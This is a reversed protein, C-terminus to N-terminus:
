LLEELTKRTAEDPTVRIVTWVDTHYVQERNNLFASQDSPTYVDTRYDNPDMERSLVYATENDVLYLHNTGDKVEPLNRVSEASGTCVVQAANAGAGLLNRGMFVGKLTVNGALLNV